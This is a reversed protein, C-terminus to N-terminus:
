VIKSKAVEKWKQLFELYYEQTEQEILKYNEDMERMLRVHREHMKFMDEEIRQMHSRAFDVPHRNEHLDGDLSDSDGIDGGDYGVDEFYPQNSSHDSGGESDDKNYDVGEEGEM